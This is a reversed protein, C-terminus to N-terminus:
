PKMPGLPAPLVLGHADQRREDVRAPAFRRHSTIMRDVVAGFVMLPIHAVHVFKKPTVVSLLHGCYEFEQRLGM